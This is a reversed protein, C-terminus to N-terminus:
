TPSRSCACLGLGAGALVLSIVGWALILVIARHFRSRISVGSGQPLSSVEAVATAAAKLNPREQAGSLEEPCTTTVGLEDLCRAVRGLAIDKPIGIAEVRGGRIFLIMLGFKYGSEAQGVLHASDIESPKWKCVSGHGGVITAVTVGDASITIARISDLLFPLSIMVCATTTAFVREGWGLAHPGISFLVSLPMLSLLIGIAGRVVRNTRSAIRSRFFYPEQWYM